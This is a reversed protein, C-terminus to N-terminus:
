PCTGAGTRDSKYTLGGSPDTALQVISTESSWCAAGTVVALILERGQIRFLTAQQPSSEGIQLKAQASDEPVLWAYVFDDPSQTYFAYGPKDGSLSPDEGALCSPKEHTNGVCLRDPTVDIVAGDATTIRDRAKLSTIAPAVDSADRDAGPGAADDGVSIQTWPAMTAFAALGLAGIAAAASLRHTVRRRRARRMLTKSELGVLGGEYRLADRVLTEIDNM